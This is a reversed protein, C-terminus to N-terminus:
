SFHSCNIFYDSGSLKSYGSISLVFLYVFYMHKYLSLYIIIIFIYVLLCVFFFSLLLLWFLVLLLKSASVQTLTCREISVFYSFFRNLFKNNVFLEEVNNPKNLSLLYNKRRARTTKPPTPPPPGNRSPRCQKTPTETARNMNNMTTTLTEAQQTTCNNNINNAVLVDPCDNLRHHYNPINTM